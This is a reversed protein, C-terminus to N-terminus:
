KGIFRCVQHLDPLSISNALTAMRATSQWPALRKQLEEIFGIVAEEEANLVLVYERTILAQVPRLHLMTSRQRSGASPEGEEVNLVLVYERAQM